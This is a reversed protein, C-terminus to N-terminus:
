SKKVILARWRSIESQLFRAFDDPSSHRAVLGMEGFRKAIEPNSLAAGIDANLRQVVARPTAAPAFVGGWSSFNYAPLGAESAAPMDAFSAVRQSTTVALGRLSGAKIHPGAA